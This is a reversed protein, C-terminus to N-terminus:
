YITPVFPEHKIAEKADIELQKNKLQELKFLAKEKATEPQKGENKKEELAKKLYWNNQWEKIKEPNQKRYNRMYERHYARKGELILEDM